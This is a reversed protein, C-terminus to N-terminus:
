STRRRAPSHTELSRPPSPLAQEVSPASTGSQSRAPRPCDEAPDRRRRDCTGSPCGRRSAVARYGARLIGMAGPLRMIPWLIGGWWFLRAVAVFADAGGFVRGDAALFRMEDLLREPAVGLAEAAGTTQLPLFSVGRPRVRPGFRSVLRTCLDCEGDYFVYGAPASGDIPSGPTKKM